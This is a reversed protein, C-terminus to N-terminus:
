APGLEVSNLRYVEKCNTLSREAMEIDVAIVEETHEINNYDRYTILFRKKPAPAVVSLIEEM